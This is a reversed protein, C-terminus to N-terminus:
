QDMRVPPQLRIRRAAHARGGGELLASSVRRIEQESEFDVFLSFAPTFTFAHKVVGDTCLVTQNGISFRAKAISGETGAEGPGYRVVDTIEGDPFLSVYFDMAEGANGQFMLFPHVKMAM